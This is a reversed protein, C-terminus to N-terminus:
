NYETPNYIDWLECGDMIDWMVADNAVIIDVVHTEQVNRLCDAPDEDLHYAYQSGALHEIYAVVDKKKSTATLRHHDFGEFNKMLATHKAHM